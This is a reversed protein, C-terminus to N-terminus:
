PRFELDNCFLIKQDQCNSELSPAAVAVAGVASLQKVIPDAKDIQYRMNINDKVIVTQEVIM